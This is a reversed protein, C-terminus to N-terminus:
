RKEQGGSVSEDSLTPAIDRSIEIATPIGTYGAQAMYKASILREGCKQAVIAFSFAADPLRESLYNDNYGYIKVDNDAILKMLKYSKSNCVNASVIASYATLAYFSIRDGSKAYRKIESLSYSAYICKLPANGSSLKKIQKHISKLYMTPSIKLPNAPAHPCRLSKFEYPQLKISEAILNVRSYDRANYSISTDLTANAAFACRVISLETLM